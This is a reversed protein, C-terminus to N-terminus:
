IFRLSKTRSPHAVTIPAPARLSRGANASGGLGAGSGGCFGIALGDSGFALPPAASKVM